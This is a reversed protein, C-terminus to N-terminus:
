THRALRIGTFQWRKNTQFFNRYTNRIHNKPTACSGGRLVMQDIMFKGNYEGLAGKRRKYYPYPLYSSSTWEWVDGFFQLNESSAPLPHIYANDLFNGTIAAKPTYINAASEWEFETPLRSNQWSAYADAEYYSVHTVPSSLDLEQLGELKYEYWKGNEQLWYLPCYIKNKEVWARGDSLWYEFNNYGGTEIFQLYEENTVLRNAIQFAHLYQKHRGTENDFCFKESDRHGIEYIGAPVDLYSLPIAQLPKKLPPTKQYKPFLPNHGLIYKTDTLLLEQHQQEHHIGLELLTLAEQNKSGTNQFFDQVRNDIEKRYQIIEESTPRSLNGRHARLYREGISEYYSNFLYNYEPHYTKYDTCFMGLIFTEFYWTTHALHWKPPSVDEIPQISTDEASLPAFLSLSVDRTEQFSQLLNSASEM